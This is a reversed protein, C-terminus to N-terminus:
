YLDRYKDVRQLPRSSLYWYPPVYSDINKQEEWWIRQENDRLETELFRNFDKKILSNKSDYMSRIREGIDAHKRVVASDISGDNLYPINQKSVPILRNISHYRGANNDTVPGQVVINRIYNYSVTGTKAVDPIRRRKM